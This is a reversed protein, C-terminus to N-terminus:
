WVMLLREGFRAIDNHADVIRMIDDRYLESSTSILLERGYCMPKPDFGRQMIGTSIM